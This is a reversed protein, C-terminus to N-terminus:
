TSGPGLRNRYTGTVFLTCVLAFYLRVFSFHALCYLFYLSPVTPKPQLLLRQFLPLPQFRFSDSFIINDVKHCYIKGKQNLRYESTGDFIGEAEWPVRPRGHVRWRMMIVDDCPQWVRLVEVYLTHFFIRGHFRLSWFVLRYKKMGQFRNRKDMFVIDEDYIDYTLDRQFLHPIEEKLTIIAEGVNAHYDPDPGGEPRVTRAFAFRRVGENSM